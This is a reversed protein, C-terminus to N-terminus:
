GEIIILAPILPSLYELLEFSRYAFLTPRAKCLWSLRWILFFDDRQGLSTYINAKHHHPKKKSIGYPRTVLASRLSIFLNSNQPWHATIIIFVFLGFSMIQLQKLFIASNVTALNLIVCKIHSKSKQDIACELGTQVPWCIGLANEYEEYNERALLSMWDRCGLYPCFCVEPSSYPLYNNLDPPM